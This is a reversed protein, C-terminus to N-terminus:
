KKRNEGASDIAWSPRFSVIYSVLVKFKQDVQRWKRLATIM